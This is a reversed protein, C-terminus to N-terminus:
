PMRWWPTSPAGSAPVSRCRASVARRRDVEARDERTRRAPGALPPRDLRRRAVVRRSQPVGGGRARFGFLGVRGGRQRHGETPKPARCNRWCTPWWDSPRAARRHRQRHRHARGQPPPDARALEAQAGRIDNRPPFPYVTTPTSCSAPPMSSAVKVGTRIGPDLGMTPRSGAPAALLLDKLNRAFGQDSGGRRARAAGDDSRALPSLSLKVRWRGARSTACGTRRRAGRVAGSLGRRDHARGAEGARRRRRRGRHRAVSGGRQPRAAHRARSPQAGTAWREIHDFYDSFKAGTEEKGDIVTARAPVGEGQM